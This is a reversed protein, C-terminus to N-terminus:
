VWAFTKWPKLNHMHVERVLICKEKRKKHLSLLVKLNKNNLLTEKNLNMQCIKHEIFHNKFFTNENASNLILDSQSNFFFEWWVSDVVDFYV